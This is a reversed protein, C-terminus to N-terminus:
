TAGGPGQFAIFLIETVTDGEWGHRLPAPVLFCSAM